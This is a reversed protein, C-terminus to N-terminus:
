HSRGQPTMVRALTKLTVNLERAARVCDARLAVLTAPHAGPLSDIFSIVLLLTAALVELTGDIREEERARRIEANLTATLRQGVENIHEGWPTKIVEEPPPEPLGTM